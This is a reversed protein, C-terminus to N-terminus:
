LIMSIIAQCAPKLILGWGGYQPGVGFGVFALVHGLRRGAVGRDDNNTGARGAVRGGNVCGTRQALRQQNGAELRAALEGDGGIHLVIRAKGVHDLSGPQHLLHAGLGLMDARVDDLIEDDLGFQALPGEAEGAVAALEIKRVRQDDGGARM